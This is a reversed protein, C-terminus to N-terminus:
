QNDIARVSASPPVLVGSSPYRGELRRGASSQQDIMIKESLLISKPIMHPLVVCDNLESGHQV